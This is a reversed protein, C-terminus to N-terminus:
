SQRPKRKDLAAVEAAMRDFAGAPLRLCFSIEDSPAKGDKAPNTDNGARGNRRASKSRTPTNHKTKM